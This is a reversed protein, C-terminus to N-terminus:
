GVLPIYVIKHVDISYNNRFHLAEVSDILSTDPNNLFLLM